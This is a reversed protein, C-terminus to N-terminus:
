YKRRGREHGERGIANSLETLHRENFRPDDKVVTLIAKAARDPSMGEIAAYLMKVAMAQRDENIAFAARRKSTTFPFDFDM